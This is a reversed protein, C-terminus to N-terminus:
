AGPPIDPFFKWALAGTFPMIPETWSKSTYVFVGACSVELTRHNTICVSQGEGDTAPELGVM